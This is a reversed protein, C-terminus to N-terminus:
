NHTLTRLGSSNEGARRANDANTLLAKFNIEGSHEHETKDRWGSINKLTNFAMSANFRNELAGIVLNAEAKDKFVKYAGFLKENKVAHESFDGSPIGNKFCFDKLFPIPAENAYILLKDALEECYETTYTHPGKPGTKLKVKM